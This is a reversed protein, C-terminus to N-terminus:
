AAEMFPNVIRMGEIVQGHQWDESYLVGCDLALAAAIILCDYWAFQYREHLSLAKNYLALESLDSFECIPSLVEDFFVKIEAIPPHHKAKVLMYNLTERVVQANICGTREILAEEVLHEAIRLKEPATDKDLTTVVINSDLFFRASM